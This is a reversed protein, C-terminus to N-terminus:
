NKEEEKKKMKKKKEKMKKKKEEEEKEECRRGLEEEDGEQQELSINLNMSRCILQVLINPAYCPPSPLINEITNEQSNRTSHKSM